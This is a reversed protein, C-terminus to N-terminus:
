KGAVPLRDVEHMVTELHGNGGLAKYAGYMEQLTEKDRFLTVTTGIGVLAFLVLALKLLKGM